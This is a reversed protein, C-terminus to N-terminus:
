WGSKRGPIATPIPLWTFCSGISGPCWSPHGGATSGAVSTFRSTHSILGPLGSVEWRGTEVYGPGGVQVIVVDQEERPSVPDLLAKPSPGVAIGQILHKYKEKLGAAKELAM